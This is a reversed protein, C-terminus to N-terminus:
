EKIKYHYCLQNRNKAKLKARELEGSKILATLSHTVLTQKVKLAACIDNPVSYGKKRLYKIIRTRCFKAKKKASDKGLDAKIPATEFDNVLFGIKKLGSYDLIM